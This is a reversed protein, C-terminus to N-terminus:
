AGATVTLAGIVALQNAAMARGATSFSCDSILGTAFLKATMASLVVAEGVALGGFYDLIAQRCATVMAADTAAGDNEVTCTVDAAVTQAAQVTVDVNIEKAANLMDAVAQVQAASPAAGKGGLYVAVTDVGNARPVVGASHIGDCATAAQRYWAANTGNAPAAYSSLLRARLSDDSEADEGGTFAATNTVTEISAPPTVMVTVTASNANGAAGAEEAAAPVSVTLSGQPLTADQTTVYRAAGTGSSACVTGEPITVNFWLATSRGFTLAGSAAAAPKRFLGREQARMELQADTATQAFTQTKLWDMAACISYIEGALVKLRIGIDSADDPSYGSLEEFKQQM